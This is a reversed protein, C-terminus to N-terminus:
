ALEAEILTEYGRPDPWWKVVKFGSETLIANWAAETREKGSIFAMMGVDMCAQTPTAGVPPLVVDCILLKSYGKKMAPALNRLIELAKSDEWDHFVAHLFYARSGKVPQPTFFDHSMVHVKSNVNAFRLAEPLDQLILSGSPLDPHKALFSELDNGVNGGVDVLIISSTGAEHLLKSTDFFEPWPTKNMSWSAMSGSFSERYDPNHAMRQWFDAKEPNALSYCSTKLDTSEQYSTDKLFNALCRGVMEYHDSWAQIQMPGFIDKHGFFLSMKTPKYREASVEEIVDIAAVLRCLRRLLNIDIDVNVLGALDQLSKEGGDTAWAEWLGLDKFIQLTAMILPQHFTLEWCRDVPSQLRYILKRAASIAESRAAEDGAFDEATLVNVSSIIGATNAM